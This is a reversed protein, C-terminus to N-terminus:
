IIQVKMRLVPEKMESVRKERQGTNATNINTKTLKKALITIHSMSTITVETNIRISKMETTIARKETLITIREICETDKGM